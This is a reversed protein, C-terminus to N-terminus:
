LAYFKIDSKFFFSDMLLIIFWAIKIEYLIQIMKSSAEKTIKVTINKQLLTQVLSWLLLWREELRLLGM